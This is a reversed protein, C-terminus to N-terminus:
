GQRRYEDRWTLTKLTITAKVHVGSDSIDVEGPRLDRILSPLLKNSRNVIDWKWAFKLLDLNTLDCPTQLFLEIQYKQTYARVIDEAKYLSSVFDETTYEDALRIIRGRFRAKHKTGDPVVKGHIAGRFYGIIDIYTDPVVSTLEFCGCYNPLECGTIVATFSQWDGNEDRYLGEWSEGAVAPIKPVCFDPALPPGAPPEPPAPITFDYFYSEAEIFNGAEYYPQTTVNHRVHITYSGPPLAAKNLVIQYGTFDILPARNIIIASAGETYQQVLTNTDYDERIYFIKQLVPKYGEPRQFVAVRIITDYIQNDPTAIAAHNIYIHSGTESITAIQNDPAFYVPDPSSLPFVLENSDYVEGDPTFIRWKLTIPGGAWNELDLGYGGNPQTMGMTIAPPTRKSPVPIFILCAGGVASYAFDFNHPAYGNGSTPVFDLVIPYINSLVSYGPIPPYPSAVIDATNYEIEDIPVFSNGVKLLTQVIYLGAPANPKNLEAWLSDYRYIPGMHGWVHFPGIIPPSAPVRNTMVAVWEGGHQGIMVGVFEAGPRNPITPVSGSAGTVPNTLALSDAIDLRPHDSDRGTVALVSRIPTFGAPPTLTYTGSAINLTGPNLFNLTRGKRNPHLLLCPFTLVADRAPVPAQLLVEIRGDLSYLSTPTQALPDLNTRYAYFQTGEIIFARRRFSLPYAGGGLSDIIPELGAYKQLNYIRASPLDGPDTSIYSRVADAHPSTFPQASLPSSHGSNNGFHLAPKIEVRDNTMTIVARLPLQADPVGSGAGVASIRFTAAAGNVGIIQCIYGAYPPSGSGWHLFVFVGDGVAFGEQEFDQGFLNLSFEGGIAWTSFSTIFANPDPNDLAGQLPEIVVFYRDKVRIKYRDLPALILTDTLPDFPQYTNTRSDIIDFSFDRVIM